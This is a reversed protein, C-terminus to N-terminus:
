VREELGIMFFSVHQSVHYDNTIIIIESGFFLKLIIEVTALPVVIAM